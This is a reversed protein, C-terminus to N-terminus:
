SRYDIRLWKYIFLGGVVTLQAGRLIANPDFNSMILVHHLVELKLSASIHYRYRVSFVYLYHLSLLNCGTIFIGAM